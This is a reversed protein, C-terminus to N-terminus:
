EVVLDGLVLPFVERRVEKRRAQEAETRGSYLSKKRATSDSISFVACMALGCIEAAKFCAATEMEIVGCGLALIEDIHAFQAFLSDTSYNVARHFGAGFAGCRTRCVAEAEALLSADPYAAGGFCGASLSRQLYRSAGDGCISKEPLVVDGIELREDLAGVSGIFVVRRCGTLGLALVADMCVPAGIGPVLYTAKKGGLRVQWCRLGFNGRIRPESEIEVAGGFSEPEWAPALIVTPRVEAPACGLVERAIDEPKSGFRANGELLNQYLENM